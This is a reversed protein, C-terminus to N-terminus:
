LLGEKEFLTVTGGYDTTQLRYSPLFTPFYSLSFTLSDKERRIQLRQILGDRSCLSQASWALCPQRFLAGRHHQHRDRDYNQLVLIILIICTFLRVVVALVDQMCKGVVCVADADADEDEGQEQAGQEPYQSQPQRRVYGCGCRVCIWANSGFVSLVVTRRVHRCWSNTAPACLMASCRLAGCVLVSVRRTPLFGCNSIRRRSRGNIRRTGRERRERGRAGAEAVGSSMAPLRYMIGRLPFGGHWWTPHM